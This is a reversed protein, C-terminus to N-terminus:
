QFHSAAELISKIYAYSQQRKSNLREDVSLYDITKDPVIDTSDMIRDSLGLEKLLDVVRGSRTTHLFTIFSKHYLISFVTGHFSNTVIYSANKVLYLFEGPGIDIRKKAGKVTIFPNPSIDIICLSDQESIQRAVVESAKSRQMDYFLLYPKDPLPTEKEMVIYDQRCLLLTCDLVTKVDQKLVASLKEAVSSERVSIGIFDAVKTKVDDGYQEINLEGVSVGYSAKIGNTFTLFFADDLANGTLAPNWIQDSGCIYLDAEPSKENLEKINHYTKTLKLNNKIFTEFATDRKRLEFYHSLYVIGKAFAKVKNRSSNIKRLEKLVSKKNLIYHPLYDIIVVKNGLSELYRFLATCQLTAGFNSTNHFTINAIKM